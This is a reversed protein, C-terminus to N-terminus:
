SAPSRLFQRRSKDACEPSENLIAAVFEGGPFVLVTVFAIHKIAKDFSLFSIRVLNFKKGLGILADSCWRLVM